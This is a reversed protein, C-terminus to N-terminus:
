LNLSGNKPDNDTKESTPLRTHLNVIIVTRMIHAIREVVKVIHEIDEKSNTFISWVPARIEWAHWRGSFAKFSRYYPPFDRFRVRLGNMRTRTRNILGMLQEDSNLADALLPNPEEGWNSLKFKRDRYAGYSCSAGEKKSLNEPSDYIYGVLMTYGNKEISYFDVNSRKLTFCLDRGFRKKSVEIDEELWSKISYHIFEAKISIVLFFLIIFVLISLFIIAPNFGM